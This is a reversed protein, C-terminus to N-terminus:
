PMAPKSAHDSADFASLSGLGCAELRRVAVRLAEVAEVAEVGQDRSLRPDHWSAELAECAAALGAATGDACAETVTDLYGDREQGHRDRGEAFDAFLLTLRSLAVVAARVAGRHLRQVPRGKVVWSIVQGERDEGLEGAPVGFMMRGVADMESETRDIARARALAQSATEFRNGAVMRAIDGHADGPMM